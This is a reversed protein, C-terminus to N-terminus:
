RVILVDDLEGNGQRYNDMKCIEEELLVKDVGELELRKTKPICFYILLGVVGSFLCLLFLMQAASLYQGLSDFLLDQVVMKSCWYVVNAVVLCVKRHKM